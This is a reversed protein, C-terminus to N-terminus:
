ELYGRFLDPNTYKDIIEKSYKHILKPHVKLVNELVFEQESLKGEFEAERDKDKLGFYRDWTFQYRKLYRKQTRTLFAKM